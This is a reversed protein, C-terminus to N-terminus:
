GIVKAMYLNFNVFADAGANQVLRADPIEYLRRTWNGSRGQVM